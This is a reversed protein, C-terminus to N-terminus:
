LHGKENRVRRDEVLKSDLDHRTEKEEPNKGECDIIPIRHYGKDPAAKSDLM